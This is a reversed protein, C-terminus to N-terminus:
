AESARKSYVDYGRAARKRGLEQGCDMCREVFFVRVAGIRGSREIGIAVYPHPCPRGAVSPADSV